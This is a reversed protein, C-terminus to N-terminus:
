SMADILHGFDLLSRSRAAAYAELSLCSASSYAVQDGIFSVILGEAFDVFDQDLPCVWDPSPVLDSTYGHSSVIVPLGCSMAELVVLPQAENRYFSPFLFLDISSLYDAKDRGYVPGVLHIAGPYLTNVRHVEALIRTDSSPGALSLNCSVGRELLRVLVAVARLAGKEVTLNSLMGMRLPRLSRVPVVGAPQFDTIHTANSSVLCQRVGPYRWKLDVLMRDCLVVHVAEGGAVRCLLAFARQFSSLHASSHHHIYIKYAFIRAVGVLLFNYLIGPGAELVCYFRRERFAFISSVGVSLLRWFAASVRTLRSLHYFFGLGVPAVDCIEVQAGGRARLVTAVRENVLSQGHVPPPLAAAFVLLPRLVPM